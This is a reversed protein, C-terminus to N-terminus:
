AAHADLAEVTEGDNMPLKSLAAAMKAANLKAMSAETIIAKTIVAIRKLILKKADADMKGSTSLQSTAQQLEADALIGAVEPPAYTGDRAATLLLNPGIGADDPHSYVGAAEVKINGEKGLFGAYLINNHVAIPKGVYYFYKVPNGEKFINATFFPSSPACLAAVPVHLAGDVKHLCPLTKGLLLNEVTGRLYTSLRPARLVAPEPPPDRPPSRSRKRPPQKAGPAPAGGSADSATNGDGNGVGGGVLGGLGGPPAAANAGQPNSRKRPPQKAGPAPAGGSADSATNGDGNGVGGGVLGGLGGPPAAANAGQPNGNSAGVVAQLQALSRAGVAAFPNSCVEGLSPPYPGTTPAHMPVAAATPLSSPRNGAIPFAPWVSGIPLGGLVDAAVTTPLPWAKQVEWRARPWGEEGKWELSQSADMNKVMWSGFTQPTKKANINVCLRDDLWGIRIVLSEKSSSAAEARLKMLMGQSENASVADLAASFNRRSVVLPGGDNHRPRGRGRARPEGVLDLDGADDVVLHLAGGRASM